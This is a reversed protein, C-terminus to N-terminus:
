VIKGLQCVVTGGIQKILFCNASNLRRLQTRLITFKNEFSPPTQAIRWYFNLYHIFIFLCWKLAGVSFSVRVTM